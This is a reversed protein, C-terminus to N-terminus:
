IYVEVGLIDLNEKMEIVKEIDKPNLKALEGINRWSFRVGLTDLNGKM